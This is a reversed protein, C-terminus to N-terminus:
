CTARQWASGRCRQGRRQKRERDEKVTEGDWERNLEDLLALVNKNQPIDMM